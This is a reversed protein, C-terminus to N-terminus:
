SKEKFYQLVKTTIQYRKPLYGFDISSTNWYQESFAIFVALYKDKEVELDEVQISNNMFFSILEEDFVGDVYESIGDERFHILWVKFFDYLFPKLGITDLDIFQYSNESNWVVNYPSADGHQLVSIVNDIGVSSFITSQQYPVDYLLEQKANNCIIDKALIEIHAKDIHVIGKARRSINFRNKKDFAIYEIKPYTLASYKESINRNWAKGRKDYFSFVIEELVFVIKNTWEGWYITAEAGLTDSKKSTYVPLFPFKRGKSLHKGNLCYIGNELYQSVYRFATLTRISYIGYRILKKVINM